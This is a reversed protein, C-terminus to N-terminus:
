VPEGPGRSRTVRLIGLCTLSVFCLASMEHECFDLLRATMCQLVGLSGQAM